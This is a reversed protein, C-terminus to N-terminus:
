NPVAFNSSTFIRLVAVRRNQRQAVSCVFRGLAMSPDILQRALCETRHRTPLDGLRTPVRARETLCQGGYHVARGCERFTV